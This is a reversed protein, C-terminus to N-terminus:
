KPEPPDPAVPLWPYRAAHLYKEGMQRSWCEHPPPARPSHRPWNKPGMLMPTSGLLAVTHERARQRYVASLRILTAAYSLLAAVAVIVMLRRITFRPLRM